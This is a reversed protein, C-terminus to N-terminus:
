ISFFQYLIMHKIFLNLTITHLIKISSTYAMASDIKNYQM